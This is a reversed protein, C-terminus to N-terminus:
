GVEPIAAQFAMGFSTAAQRHAAPCALALALGIVADTAVHRSQAVGANNMDGFGIM